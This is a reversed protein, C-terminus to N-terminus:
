KTLFKKKSFAEDAGETPVIVIVDKDAVRLHLHESAGMLESVDVKGEIGGNEALTIHDPRVGLIVDQEKVDLTSLRKQKDDSM